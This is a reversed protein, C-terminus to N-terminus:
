DLLKADSLPKDSLVTRRLSARRLTADALITGWDRCIFSRLSRRLLKYDVVSFSLTM